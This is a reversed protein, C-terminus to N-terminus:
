NNPNKIYHLSPNNSWLSLFHNYPEKQSFAWQYNYNCDDAVQIGRRREDEFRLSDQINLFPNGNPIHNYGDKTEWVNRSGPEKGDYNIAVANRNMAFFQNPSRTIFEEYDSGRVNKPRPVEAVFCRRGRDDELGEPSIFPLTSYTPHLAASGLVAPLKIVLCGM